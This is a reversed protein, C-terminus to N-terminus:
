IVRFMNEKVGRKLGEAKGGEYEVGSAGGDGSIGELKLRLEEDQEAITKKRKESQANANAPSKTEVTDKRATTKSTATHPSATSLRTSLNLANTKGSAASVRRSTPTLLRLPSKTIIKQLM